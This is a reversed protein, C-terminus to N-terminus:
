RTVPLARVGCTTGDPVFAIEEFPVATRLGPIRRHLAGYVIQPEPRALSPGLCPHPRYGFAPTDAM